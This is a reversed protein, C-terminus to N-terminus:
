MSMFSCGPQGLIKAMKFSAAVLTPAFDWKWIKQKVFLVMVVQLDSGCICARFHFGNYHVDRPPM